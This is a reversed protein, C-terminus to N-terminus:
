KGGAYVKTEAASIMAALTQPLLSARDPTLELVEVAAHEAGIEALLKKVRRVRKRARAPGSGYHCQGERCGALLVARAGRALASLMLTEDVTGVCPVGIVRTGPPFLLSSREVATFACHSCAFVLLPPVDSHLAAEVEAELEPLCLSSLAIAQAPCEAACIGCGQCSCPDVHPKRDELRIAGATCVRLCTLCASCAGVIRAVRAPVLREQLFTAVRTATAMGQTLAEQTTAPGTASGCAFVGPVPTEVPRVKAHRLRLFGDEDLPLGFTQALYGLGGPPRLGSAVAVLGPFLTISEGLIPDLYTLALRTNGHPPNEEWQLEPPSGPALRVFRVGRRRAENYELEARGPTCIDRFLVLVDTHPSTKKLTLACRVAQRCCVKSCYGLPEHGTCLVIVVPGVLSSVGLPIGSALLEELQPLTMVAEHGSEMLSPVLPVAEGGVAIVVAGCSITAVEGHSPQWPDSPALTVQWGDAVRRATSVQSWLHVNILPHSSARDALDQLQRRLEPALAGTGSTLMQGGLSGEREVLHCRIGLDALSLACSLGAAGGGVILVSRTRAPPALEADPCSPAPAVAAQLAGLARELTVPLLRGDEGAAAFVQAVRLSGRPTGAAADRLASECARPSCAAVVVNRHRAAFPRVAEDRGELLCDGLVALERVQPWAQLHQKLQALFQECGPAHPCQCILVGAPADEPHATATAPVTAVPASGVLPPTDEPPPEAPPPELSRLFTHCALAAASAQTLSARVDKPESFSGAVSVGTRDTDSAFHPPSPCFGFEDVELGLMRALNSIHPDPELGASLVVLDFPETSVTGHEDAFRISLQGQEDLDISHVRHRIVRIGHKRVAERAYRGLPLDPTRLDQAFITTQITGRSLERTVAAQKIAYGCCVASCMPRNLSTDRSGVCQVWAVRTVPGQHPPRPLQGAALLEEYRSATLVNPHRSYRLGEMGTPDFERCGPALIVAGFVEPLTFTAGQDDRVTARYRGPEGTIETVETNTLVHLGRFGSPPFPSKICLFCGEPALHCLSCDDTPFTRELDHLKGGVHPRKEVLCVRHHGLRVLDTAAQLGAIGGGVVLVNGV